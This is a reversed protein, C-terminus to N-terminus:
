EETRWAISDQLVTQAFSHISRIMETDSCHMNNKLWNTLISQLAEQQQPNKCIHTPKIFLREKPFICQTGDPLILGVEEKYSDIFLISGVIGKPYVKGCIVEKYLLYARM